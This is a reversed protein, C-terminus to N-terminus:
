ETHAFAELRQRCSNHQAQLVVCDNFLDADGIMGAESHVMDLDRMNWRLVKLQMFSERIVGAMADQTSAAQADQELSPIRICHQSSCHQRHHNLRYLHLVREYLARAILRRSTHEQDQPPAERGPVLTTPNHLRRIEITQFV